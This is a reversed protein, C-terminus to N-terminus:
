SYIYNGTYLLDSINYIHGIQKEWSFLVFGKISALGGGSKRDTNDMKDMTYLSSIAKIWTVIPEYLIGTVDQNCFSPNAIPKLFIM